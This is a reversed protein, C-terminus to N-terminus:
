RRSGEVKKLRIYYDPRENLHDLAIEKATQLSTTHEQEVAIGDDLQRQLWDVKVGHKKAIQELDPTPVDLPAEDASKAKSKAKKRDTVRYQNRLHESLNKIPKGTKPDTLAETKRKRRSNSLVIRM